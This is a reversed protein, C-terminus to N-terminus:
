QSVSDVDSERRGIISYMFGSPWTHRRRGETWTWEPVNHSGELSLTMGALNALYQVHDLSRTRYASVLGDFLMLFPILPIIYTLILVGSSTLM